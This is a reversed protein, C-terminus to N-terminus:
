GSCAATGEEESWGEEEEQAAEEVVKTAAKGWAGVQQQTCNRVSPRRGRRERMGNISGPPPLYSKAQNNTSEAGDDDVM